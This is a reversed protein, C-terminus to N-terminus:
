RGLERSRAIAMSLLIVPVIGVLVILLAGGAAETLREDSALRYVRVALTDFNFPRVILTAPLEKTVEVFVLLAATLLSGRLMPVHVRLLTNISRMGLSRAADDMSATIKGLSAEVAGFSMALFRVLYAFVLGAITGSLLLGTSLGLSARAWEDIRNDIWGLHMLVGVAIVSGPVAYGISAIRASTRTLGNPRIRKGYALVLAVVVALLATVTALTLTNRAYEVVQPALARASNSLTLELLIGAPLLFGLLIPLLCVAFALVGNRGRLPYGPLKRYRSSGSQGRQRRGLNREVVILVVIFLLLFAALQGAAVREGLGFWTRYIGTTFTVVGFYQVTGFDSLTEMLALTVGAAIAPRALPLSVVFFSRWAGWGLSRSAELTSVAQELFAARVLLYVYPYLALTLMVVAGGLSRVDPFWYDRPGWGTLGRLASQMPGAFQLFDTYAYALIYAPIALPLLLAWEFLRRGPFRCMTVLWATGVGIVLTGVGVGLMLLLSNRIYEPLLTSALHRWIEGAPTLVSSLVVLIPAAILAAVAVVVLSWGSPRWTRRALRSRRKSSTQDVFRQM